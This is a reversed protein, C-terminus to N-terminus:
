TIQETASGFECHLIRNSMDRSRSKAVIYPDTGLRRFKFIPVNSIKLIAYCSAAARCLTQRLAAYEPWPRTQYIFKCLNESRVSTALNCSWRSSWFVCSAENKWTLITRGASALSRKETSHLKCTDRSTKYNQYLGIEHLSQCAFTKTKTERFKRNSHMARNREHHKHTHVNCQRCNRGSRIHNM